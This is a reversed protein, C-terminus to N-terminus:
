ASRLERSLKALEIECAARLREVVRRNHIRMRAIEPEDPLDGSCFKDLSVFAFGLSAFDGVQATLVIPIVGWHLYEVLKTPCAVQNLLVPDRLVFGYTCSLYYNPVQDPQVSICIFDIVKGIVALHKFAAAEGSLFVFRFQPAAAASTIMLPVNQWSQLGGAYVVAKSDRKSDMVKEFRSREDLIKPLIAIFYNEASNKGYKYQYHQRMASTVYVVADSRQLAIREVLNFFRARWPKDNFALEEPVVGHLDTITTGLWYAPLAMLSGYVSHIYIRSAKKFWDTIIFFHRFANLQLVTAQGFCYQRSSWFRRPSIELYVRPLDSVLLDISAVRQVFGDKEDSLAPFPAVFVIM